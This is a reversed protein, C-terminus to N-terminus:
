GEGEGCGKSQPPSPALGLMSASALALALAWGVRNFTATARVTVSLVHGLLVLYAEGRHLHLGDAAAHVRTEGHHDSGGACTRGSHCNCFLVSCFLVLSGFYEIFRSGLM